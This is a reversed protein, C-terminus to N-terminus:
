KLRLSAVFASFVRILIEATMADRRNFHELGNRLEM